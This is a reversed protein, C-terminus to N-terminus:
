EVSAKKFITESADWAADIFKACDMEAQAAFQLFQVETVAQGKLQQRVHLRKLVEFCKLAMFQAFTKNGVGGMGKPSGMSKRVRTSEASYHNLWVVNPFQPEEIITTFDLGGQHTRQEESLEATGPAPEGCLLIDPIDSGADGGLGRPPMRDVGVFIQVSTQDSVGAGFRVRVTAHGERGGATFVGGRGISGMEPEDVSAALLLDDRSGTPTKFSVSLKTREGQKLAEAPGVIDVSSAPLVEILIENSRIRGDATEFWAVAVGPEIGEASGPGLSAIGASDCKPLLGADAKVPKPPEGPDDEFCSVILPVKTGAAITVGSEGRELVIRDIRSGYVGRGRPQRDGSGDGGTRSGEGEDADDGSVDQDLFGRMLNRLADLMKRAREQEQPSTETAQARQIRTALEKVEGAVWGRLARTLPTNALHNRDAGQLHEGVLAPCDLRGRIFYVAPMALGLAPLFWTAVNNRANSLRLVNRAKLDESLSLNNKTTELRLTGPPQGGAGMAVSDNTTPDTLIDPIPIEVPQEFAPYPDLTAVELAGGRIPAGDVIMWVDCTELTLAAQGHDAIQEALRGVRKSMGEARAKTWEAVQDIVVATFANRKAFAARIEAPLGDLTLSFKALFQNLRRSADPEAINDIRQGDEVAFGPIYSFATDDTQYGMRTYKGYRCSEMTAYRSAGRAMFGKGGNGHGAEIQDGASQRGAPEESWTKWHHFDQATAGAFDVVGLRKGKTDVLIAIQRDARDQLALRNYQDKSNKVLEPLGERPQAFNGLLQDLTRKANIPVDGSFEFMGAAGTKIKTDTRM